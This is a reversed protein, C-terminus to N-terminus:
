FTGMAEQYCYMSEFDPEIEIYGGCSDHMEMTAYDETDIWEHWFEKKEKDSLTNFADLGIYSGLIDELPAVEINYHYCQGNAWAGFIAVESVMSALAKERVTKTLNKKGFEAIAKEKSCYIYGVQGSDWRCQFGTTNYAVGSHQYKYVPLILHTKVDAVLQCKDNLIIIKADNTATIEQDSDSCHSSKDWLLLTGVNDYERPSETDSDSSITLLYVKGDKLWVECDGWKSLLLKNSKEM